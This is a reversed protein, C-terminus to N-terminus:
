HNCCGLFNQDSGPSVEPIAFDSHFGQWPNDRNASRFSSASFVGLFQTRLGIRSHRRGSAAPQAKRARLGAMSAQITRRAGHEAVSVTTLPSGNAELSLAAAGHPEAIVVERVV